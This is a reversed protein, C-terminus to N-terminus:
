FRVVGDRIPELVPRPFTDLRDLCNIVGAAVQRSCVGNGTNWGAAEDDSCPDVIRM